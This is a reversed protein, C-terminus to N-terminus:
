GAYDGQLDEVTLEYTVDPHVGLGEIPQGNTRWARTWPLTLSVVGLQNPPLKIRKACAGAGATRKGFLTAKKNDQLIAALFEQSGNFTGEAQAVITAPSPCFSRASECGGLVTANASANRLTSTRFHFQSSSYVPNSSIV